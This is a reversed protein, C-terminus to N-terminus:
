PVAMPLKRWQIFLCLRVCCRKLVPALVFRAFTLGIAFCVPYSMSPRSSAEISAVTMMFAIYMAVWIFADAKFLVRLITGLCLLQVVCRAAGLLLTTHLHLGTAYSLTLPIALLAAVLALKWFPLDLVPEGPGHGGTAAFSSNSDLTAVAPAGAANAFAALVVFPLLAIARSRAM